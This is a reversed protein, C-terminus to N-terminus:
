AGETPEIQLPLGEAELRLYYIMQLWEPQSRMPIRLAELTRKGTRRDLLAFMRVVANQSQLSEAISQSDYESFARYFDMQYFEGSDMVDYPAQRWAEDSPMGEAQRAAYASWTFGFRDYYNSKLIECGDLRVAVRGEDGDHAAHYTTAFYTLRGRLSEALYEHELRDRIKSWPRIHNGSM